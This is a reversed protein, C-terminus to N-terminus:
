TGAPAIADRILLALHLRMRTSPDDVDIGYRAGIRKIRYSLTHPHIALAEAAPKIAFGHRALSRLTEVHTPSAGPLALKGLVRRMFDEAGAGGIGVLDLIDVDAYSHIARTRDMMAGIRVARLAEVASRRAGAVGEGPRGIGIRIEAGLSHAASRELRRVDLEGAVLAAFGDRSRGVWSPEDGSCSAVLGRLSDLGSSDVSAGGTSDSSQFLVVTNRGGLSIGLSRARVDVVGESGEQALLLDFFDYLDQDRFHSLREREEVYAETLATMLQTQNAVITPLRQLLEDRADAGAAGDVLDAVIIALGEQFFLLYERLPIGLRARSRATERAQEFEEPSRTRGEGLTMTYFITQHHVINEFVDDMVASSLNQYHPVKELCRDLIKRARERRTRLGSEIMQALASRAGGRPGALSRSRPEVDM